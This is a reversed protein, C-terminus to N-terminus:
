FEFNTHTENNLLPNLSILVVELSVALKLQIEKGDSYFCPSSRMQATAKEIVFVLWRKYIM